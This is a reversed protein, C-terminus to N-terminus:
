QVVVTGKMFPHISCHYAYTGPTDFKVTTTAGPSFTLNWNGGDATTTHTTSDNNGWTVTTGAAVTLPTPSFGPAANSGATGNPVLVTTPGAPIQTTPNTPSNNYGNSCSTVAFVAAALIFSRAIFSRLM